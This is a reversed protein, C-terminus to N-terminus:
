GVVAGWTFFRDYKSPKENMFVDPVGPVEWCGPQIRLKKIQEIREKMVVCEENHSAFFTHLTDVSARVLFIGEQCVVWNLEQNATQDLFPRSLPTTLSLCTEM